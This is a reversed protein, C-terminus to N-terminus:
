DEVRHFQFQESFMTTGIAALPTSIVKVPLLVGYGLWPVDNKWGWLEATVGPVHVTGRVPNVMTGDIVPLLLYMPLLFPALIIKSTTDRPFVEDRLYNSLPLQCGGCLLGATLTLALLFHRRPM